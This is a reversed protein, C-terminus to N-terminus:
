KKKINEDGMCTLFYKAQEKTNFFVSKLFNLINQITTSEPISLFVNRKRISKVIQTKVKYKWDLLTKKASIDSLITHWIDDESIIKYHNNAYQIFLNSIPIYYFQTQPDRFFGDIYLEMEHTLLEQRKEKELFAHIFKPLQIEIYEKIKLLINPSDSYTDLLKKLEQEAM